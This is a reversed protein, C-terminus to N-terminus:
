RGRGGPPTKKAGSGAKAERLRRQAAPDARGAALEGRLKMLSDYRVRPLEGADVAARVACGPEARHQCDRFRCNAAIREVDEFTNDLGADADWLQLERMGPTDIVLAGNSLPFLQSQTTTHRGRSDHVRVAATRQLNAGALRNLLTSKGVGSSGLLALTSRPEIFPLLAAHGDEARLSVTLVPVEAAVAAAEQKRTEAEDPSACLDAKNLLVVPRAGSNHALALYRELRRVNFDADLGMMLLVTDVNAAVVQEARSGPNRRSFKTKRPLVHCITTLAGAAGLRVAVWDGVTPLAAANAADHGLRGAKVARVQEGDTAVVYFRGHEIIIRGPTLTSDGLASLATAFHPDFGLSALSNM